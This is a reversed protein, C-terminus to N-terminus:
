ICYAWCTVNQGDFLLFIFLPFPRVSTYVSGTVCLLVINLINQTCHGDPGYKSNFTLTVVTTKAMLVIDTRPESICSWTKILHFIFTDFTLKCHKNYDSSDNHLMGSKYFIIVCERLPLLCSTKLSNNFSALNKIISM